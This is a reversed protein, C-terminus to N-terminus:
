LQWRMRLGLTRRKGNRNWSMNRVIVPEQQRCSYYELRNIQEKELGNGQLSLMVVTSNYELSRILTKMGRESVDNQSLYIRSLTTNTELAQSLEVVGDSHISNNAVDLTTLATNKELARAIASAGAAGIHNFSLYLKQLTTNQQLMEGIAIAGEDGILNETLNLRTVSSMAQLHEHLPLSVEMELLASTWVFSKYIHIIEWSKLLIRPAKTELRSTMFKLSSLRLTTKKWAIFTAPSALVVAM